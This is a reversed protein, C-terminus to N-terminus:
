QILIVNEGAKTDFETGSNYYVYSQDANSKLNENAKSGRFYCDYVYMTATGGAYLDYSRGYSDFITCGYFASVVTDIDVACGGNCYGYVGNVRIVQSSNHATTSNNSLKGSETWGYGCNISTCNIEIGCGEKDTSSKHYNFGDKATNNCVVNECITFCGKNSMSDLTYDASRNNYFKCDSIYVTVDYSTNNNTNLIGRDGNLININKMYILTDGTFNEFRFAGQNGLGLGLLINDDSVVVGNLNVYINPTAYYYTFPTSACEAKTNVQTLTNFIGEMRRSIDIVGYVGSRSTTYINNYDSDQTWVHNDAEKFWVGDKSEGILNISHTFRTSDSNPIGQRPYLGNKVFITDGSSCHKWAEYITQYPNNESGDGTINDGDPAIYYTTGGSNIFKNRDFDVFYERADNTFIKFDAFRADDLDEPLTVETWRSYYQKRYTDMTAIGQDALVENVAGVITSKDNTNLTSLDGLIQTSILSALTGNDAMEDLKHNVEDQVNLNDFYDHVYDHLTNFQEIYDDVTDNIDSEFDDQRDTLNTEFEDQRNLLNTTFTNYAETLQNVKAYMRATQQLVSGSEKDYFAPQIGTEVWPPLLEIFINNAM